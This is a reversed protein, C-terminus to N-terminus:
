PERRRGLVHLQAAIARFAPHDSTAAELALLDERADPDADILTGPILDAFTRVGHIQDVELGAAALLDVLEPETFRRPLPDGDGWRGARDDLARAADAFRGAIARALVVAHRNAVIVSVAGGPRVVRVLAALAARVDDVQELVGHCLVLDASREGVVDLLGDADGQLARVAVGADRARRELAALADPSPDVVTVRHGLEALPVAFGGTGGGVDVIDFQATMDASRDTASGPDALGGALLGRLADWVVGSRRQRSTRLREAM